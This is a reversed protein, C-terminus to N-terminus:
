IILGFKKSCCSSLSCSPLIPISPSLNTKTPLGSIFFPVKSGIIINPPDGILTATGGINSIVAQSIVYVKPDLGMGATLEIIIPIVILVTTVNDLCASLGATVVSFLVLIKLPSGQTLEAIKVSVITFFGSKRLIAVIMMMGLLLMITEFDIFEIATHEDIIHLALLVMVGLLAAVAKNVLEFTIAAYVILFVVIPIFVGEM